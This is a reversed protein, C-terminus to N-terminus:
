TTSSGPPPQTPRESGQEQTTGQSETAKAGPRPRRGARGGGGAGSRPLKSEAVKTESTEVDEDSEEQAAATGPAVQPDGSGTIGEGHTFEGSEADFSRTQMARVPKNEDGEAEEPSLRGSNRDDPAERFGINFHMISQRDGHSMEWDKIRIVAPSPLVRMAALIEDEDMDDYGEFPLGMRYAENLSPEDSSPKLKQSLAEYMEGEGSELAEVWEPNIADAPIVEGLFWTEGAGQQYGIKEGTIPHQLERVAKHVTLEDVLVEYGKNEAM